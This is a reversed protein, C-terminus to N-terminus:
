IEICKGPDFSFYENAEVYGLQNSICWTNGIQADINTHSHGYIWYAIDSNQIYEELEVTFAGNVSSGAHKPHVLRFSPVHHTMVIKKSATSRTVAQKLFALCRAHEANFSAATLTQGQYDIRYFDSIYKETYPADEDHITSWLTSIIIDTDGIHVIDNYHSIVNPRIQLQYGDPLTAVDYHKYFEHNGM